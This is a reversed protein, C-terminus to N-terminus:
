CCCGPGCDNRVLPTGAEIEAVTAMRVTDIEIEFHFLDPLEITASKKDGPKLGQLLNELQPLIKGAGHVYQVALGAITNEIEVGQSDTMIYRLAVVTNEAIKM